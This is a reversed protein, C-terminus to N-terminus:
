RPVRVSAAVIEYVKGPGITSEPSGLDEAYHAAEDPTVDRVIVEGVLTVRKGSIDTPVFFEYDKFSVRVFSTGQQAIFFCGKKQCVQAVRTVVRVTEDVFRDGDAAIEELSVIAVSEDLTSGFTEYDATRAVPESLRIVKQEDAAMCSSAAFLAIALMTHRNWKTM